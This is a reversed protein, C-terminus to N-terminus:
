DGDLRRPSITSLARWGDMKKFLPGNGKSRMSALTAETARGGKSKIYDTAEQPTLWAEDHEDTLM